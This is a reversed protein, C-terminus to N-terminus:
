YNQTLLLRHYVFNCTIASLSYPSSYTQFM